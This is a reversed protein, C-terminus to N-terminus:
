LYTNGSDVLEWMVAKLLHWVVAACCMSLIYMMLNFINKTDRDYITLCERSQAKHKLVRRIDTLFWLPVSVYPSLVPQSVSCGKFGFRMQVFNSPHEKQLLIFNRLHEIRRLVPPSKLLNRRQWGRSLPITPKYWEEEFSPCFRYWFLCYYGLDNSRHPRIDNNHSLLPFLPM